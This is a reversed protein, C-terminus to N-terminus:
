CNRQVLAKFSEGRDEFNNYQDFSPFGPSFVLNAEKAEVLAKPVLEDLTEFKEHQIQKFDRELLEAAEGFLWLKEVKEFIAEVVPKILGTSDKMRLQGGLILHIPRDVAKLATLTAVWNTSKSDNFVSQEVDVRELRHSVGKFEQVGKRMQEVELGFEFAMKEAFLLNLANHHGPLQLDCLLESEVLEDSVPVLKFNRDPLQDVLSLDCILVDDSKMNDLLHFKAERYPEISPYREGHSMSINLIAAIDPHFKDMSELQFSSLELLAVDYISGQLQNLVGDCFPIGINGGTFVNVGAHRLISDLLSVTTTKGNTGTLAMVKGKWNRYGLEIESIVEGGSALIKQVVPHTRPIGPSLVLSSFDHADFSLFDKETMQSSSLAKIEPTVWTELAPGNVALTEVGLHNLLKLASIGSRGMGFVITNKTEM